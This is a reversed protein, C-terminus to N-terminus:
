AAGRQLHTANVEGLARRCPSLPRAGCQQCTHLLRLFEVIVPPPTGHSMMTHAVTWGRESIV